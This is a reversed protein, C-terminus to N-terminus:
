LNKGTPEPPRASQFHHAELTFYRDLFSLLSGWCSPFALRAAAGLRAGWGFSPPRAWRPRLPFASSREVRGQSVGSGDQHKEVVRTCAARIRTQLCVSEYIYTDFPLVYDIIKRGCVLLVNSQQLHQMLETCDNFIFIIQLKVFLPPSLRIIESIKYLHELIM